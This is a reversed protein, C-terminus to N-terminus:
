GGTRKKGATEAARYSTRALPECVVAEFGKKLATEGYERFREPSVYEIVPIQKTTPQLYQGLVLIDCGAARLDDMASLVEDGREGLGLMISSKTKVDGNLRKAQRLTELSALYSARADRVGQLREVTEVNHAVVDPGADVVAKLRAGHLDPILVEVTAGTGRLAKVCEAYHGAGKDPLDDRDVSTIVVYRLGLSKVAEALRKPELADVPTGHAGSKVACFRCNRTCVDGLVMFTATGSAWCEGRNPCRAEECVTHLGHSALADRVDAYRGHLGIGSKLWQPKREM